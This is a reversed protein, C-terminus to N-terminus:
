LDNVVDTVEPAFYEAIAADITRNFERTTMADAWYQRAAAISKKRWGRQFPREMREGDGWGDGCHCCYFLSGYFMGQWVQVVRRRTECNWCRTLHRRVIGKPGSCITVGDAVTECGM